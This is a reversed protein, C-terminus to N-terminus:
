LYFLRLLLVIVLIAPMWKMAKIIRLNRKFNISENVWPYPEDPVPVGLFDCLPQWGDKASHILLREAPIVKKVLEIHKNYVDVAFEKDEFRGSFEGIWVTRDIMDMAKNTRPLVLRIWKPFNPLVTYITESVSQYWADVDRIGLIIKAEPFTDALEQYYAVAPWDVASQYKEFVEEWNVKEGKSAQHFWETQQQNKMVEKMHHCPGFGLEELAIKLSLTGTRGFGAGIVRLSM